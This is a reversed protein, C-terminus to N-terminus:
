TQDFISCEHKLKRLEVFNLIPFILRYLLFKWHVIEILGERMLFLKLAATTFINNQNSVVFFCFPKWDDVVNRQVLFGERDPLHKTIVNGIELTLKQDAFSIFIHDNSRTKCTWHNVLGSGSSNKVRTIPLKLM